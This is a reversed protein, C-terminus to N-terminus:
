WFLSGPILPLKKSLLHMLVFPELDLAFFSNAFEYSASLVFSTALLTAALSMAKGAVGAEQDLCCV